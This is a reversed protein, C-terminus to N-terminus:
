ELCSGSADVILLLLLCAKANLRDTTSYRSSMWDSFGRHLASLTLMLLLHHSGRRGDCVIFRWYCPILSHSMAHLVFEPYIKIRCNASLGVWPSYIQLSTFKCVLFSANEVVRPSVASPMQRFVSVWYDSEIQNKVVWEIPLSVLICITWDALKRTLSVCTSSDVFQSAVLRNIPMREGTIMYSSQLKPM